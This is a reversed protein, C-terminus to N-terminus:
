RLSREQYSLMHVGSLENLYEDIHETSQNIILVDSTICMQNVLSVDKQNMTSVLVELKM